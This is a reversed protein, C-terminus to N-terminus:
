LDKFLSKDVSQKNYQLKFGNFDKEIFSIHGNIEKLKEDLYSKNIVDSDDAPVFNTTIEEDKKFTDHVELKVQNIKLDQVKDIKSVIGDFESQWFKKYPM